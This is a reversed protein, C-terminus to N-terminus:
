EREPEAAYDERRQLQRENARLKGISYLRLWKLKFVGNKQGKVISEAHNFQVARATCTPEECENAISFDATRMCIRWARARSAITRGRIRHELARM